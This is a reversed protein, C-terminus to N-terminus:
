SPRYGPNFGSPVEDILANVITGSEVLALRQNIIRVSPKRWPKKPGDAPANSRRPGHGQEGGGNPDTADNM